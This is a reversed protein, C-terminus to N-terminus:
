NKKKGMKGITKIRSQVLNALRAKARFRTIFLEIERRRQEDKIRTKEHIEEEQAIQRYYKETDGETKRIKHRYIGMTHTVLKDMLSRDHTILLLEHPWDLLFREM